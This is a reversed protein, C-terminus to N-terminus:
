LKKAFEIIAEQNDEPYGDIRLTEVVLNAKSEKVQDEIIQAAACFTDEYGESDGLAFVAVNKGELFVEDIYVELFDQFEEQLEGDGWTSSGFVILDSEDFITNDADPANYVTVDGNAVEAIKDAVEETNGTGSGYIIAIKKM